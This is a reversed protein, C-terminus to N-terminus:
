FKKVRADLRQLRLDNSRHEASSRNPFAGANVFRGLKNNEEYASPVIRQVEELTRENVIPIVVVYSHDSNSVGLAALTNADAEGTAYLQSDRQFNFVAARTSEDFYNNAYGTLYRRQILREQLRRVQDGSDGVRLTRTSDIPSGRLAQWTQSDVTGTAPLGVSQQFAIVAERTRPGFNDSNPYTFLGKQRLAEQLERVEPGRSGQCLIPYEGGIGGPYYPPYDGGTSGQYGPPYNGNNGPYSPPYNGGNNGPYSPPYDGNNRQCISNPASPDPGHILALTRAGVIGDALIGNAQQFRIVAQRTEEGFYGTVRGNFYRLRQLDEQLTTVESGTSGIRLGGYGENGSPRSVCLSQLRTETSYGVVGDAPLGNSLQFRKVANATLSGFNGNVPGNYFGLNSLCRQINSVEAGKSGFKQLALAGGVSINLVSLTIVASLFSMAARYSGSNWHLRGVFDRHNRKIASVEEASPLHIYALNEM